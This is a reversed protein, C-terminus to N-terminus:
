YQFYRFKKSINGLYLTTLHILQSNVIPKLSECSLENHGIFTLNTKSLCIVRLKRKASKLDLSALLVMLETRIM